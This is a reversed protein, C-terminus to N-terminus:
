FLKFLTLQGIKQVFDAVSYVALQTHRVYIVKINLCFILCVILNVGKNQLRTGDKNYM